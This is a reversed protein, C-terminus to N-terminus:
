MTGLVGAEVLADIEDRAWGFEELLEVSHEGLAPAARRAATPTKSMKVIPSVVRQPGTITHTLDTIMGDALVQPQDAMEEPINVPSVPVRAEDFAAVWEAQTRTRFKERIRRKWEAALEINAPDLADYDPESSHEEGYIGLVKRMANRNAVTLAGLVVAGDKANYGGYYLRTAARVGQQSQRAELVEDWTGGRARVAAVKEMAPDRLVADHVPERMVSGSLLSLSTRLLSTTMFQGEGTKERHFLAASVGMAAAIGSAIDAIPSQILDPAGDEDMKADLAMLGSYAQAVIDSGARFKDPGENGFGTNQWYILDPRFKRLTDYDINLRAAVDLRYNITVVDIHKIIRQILEQGRHDQLDVVLSRKGRNLAQFGKSENPVISGSRRSQEGGPPEVKIVEAGLDSLHVGSVPAAVIQSFELVRIGALPGTAAPIQTM